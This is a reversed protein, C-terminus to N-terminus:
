PMLREWIGAEAGRKLRRHVARWDGYCEPLLRWQWGTRAVFWVAEIFLRLRVEGKTHIGKASKLFARMHEWSRWGISYKM